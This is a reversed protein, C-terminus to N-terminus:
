VFSFIEPVIKSSTVKQKNYYLPDYLHFYKQHLKTAQEQKIRIAFFQFFHKINHIVMM